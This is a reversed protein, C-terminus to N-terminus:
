RTEIWDGAEFPDIGLAEPDVGELREDLEPAEAGDSDSEERRDPWHEGIEHAAIRQKGYTPERCRCLGQYKANQQHQDDDPQEIEQPSAPLEATLEHHAAPFGFLLDFPAFTVREYSLPDALQLALIELLSAREATHAASVYEDRVRVMDRDGQGIVPRRHVRRSDNRHAGVEPGLLHLGLRPLMPDRNEFAARECLTKVLQPRDILRYRWLGIEHRARTHPIAGSAHLEERPPIPVARVLDVHSRAPM